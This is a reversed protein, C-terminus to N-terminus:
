PSPSEISSPEDANVRNRGERKARYLNEDASHVLKETCDQEGGLSAVGISCTLRIELTGSQGNPLRFSNSELRTRLREALVIAGQHPTQPAIVMFEEGGYRALIDPERLMRKVLEAFFALVQDGTQHGHGDNVQKFLDIDILLISLPLGHRRARAVEESLRRDLYRRNFAGTLPDAINEQELLSIRMLAVATQLSLRATLWVFCAGLFFVGPVILDLLRTQSNWFAWAYGLYGAVFIVVLALMADWQNRVRGQGQPLREILRRTTFLSGILILAGAFVLGKALLSIV